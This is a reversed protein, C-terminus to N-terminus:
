AMSSRTSRRRTQGKPRGPYLEFHNDWLSIPVAGLRGHVTRGRHRLTRTCRRVTVNPISSIALSGDSLWGQCVARESLRQRLSPDVPAWSTANTQPPSVVIASGISEVDRRLYVAYLYYVIRVCIRSPM